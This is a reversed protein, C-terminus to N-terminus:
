YKFITFTKNAEVIKHQDDCLKITKSQLLVTELLENGFSQSFNNENRNLTNIVLWNLVLQKQRKHKIEIPTRHINGKIKLSKIECFPKSKQIADILIILPSIKTTKKIFAFGLKIRKEIFEKKGANIFLKLYKLGFIKKTKIFDNKKQVM